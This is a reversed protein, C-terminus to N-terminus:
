PKVAEIFLSDPKRISGKFTDLEYKNFDSIRSEEAQCIRVNAFGAQELLRQMSYRDYMWRHVEGSNRFLGEKFVRQAQNGGITYLLLQITLNQLSKLFWSLNKSKIRDILSKPIPEPKWYGEAEIGIRSSIFKKSADSTNQSSLYKGMEGGKTSRVLQDILEITMWNYDSEATTVGSTVRELACLYARAISELDPVVVRVIGQPKLIRYCESIVSVCEHRNMHEIVHSSYCADFYDNPYPFNKRIDYGRVEPSTSVLDINIWDQHFTHGCGFNLLKM